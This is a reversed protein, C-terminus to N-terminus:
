NMRVKKSTETLGMVLLNLRNNYAKKKFRNCYAENDISDVRDKLQKIEWKVIKEFSKDMEEGTLSEMRENIQKLKKQESNEWM